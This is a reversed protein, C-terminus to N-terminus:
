GLSLCIVAYLTIRQEMERSSSGSLVLFSCRYRDDNSPFRRPVRDTTSPFHLRFLFADFSSRLSAQFSLSSISDISHRVFLRSILPPLSPSLSFMGNLPEAEFRTLTIIPRETPLLFSKTSFRFHCSYTEDPFFYFSLSM